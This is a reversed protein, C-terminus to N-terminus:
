DIKRMRITKTSSPFPETFVTRTPLFIGEQVLRGLTRTKTVQLAEEIRASLFSTGEPMAALEPTPVVLVTLQGQTKGNTFIERLELRYDHVYPRLRAFLSEVLAINFTAGACYIRDYAIRGYVTLTQVAGCGCAEDFLSAADGTLHNPLEETHIVIEGIGEEDPEVISLPVAPHYRQIGGSAHRANLNACPVGLWGSETSAFLIEVTSQPLLTRFKQALAEGVIEGSLFVSRVADFVRLTGGRVLTDLFFNFPSVFSRVHVPKFAAAVEHADPHEMDRKSLFLVRGRGKPRNLFFQVWQLSSFNKPMILLLRESFIRHYFALALSNGVKFDTVMMTPPRGTTGSTMRVFLHETSAHGPRYREIGRLGSQLDEKTTYTTGNITKM